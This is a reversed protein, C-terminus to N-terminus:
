LYRKFRALSVFFLDLDTCDNNYTNIMRYILANPGSTTRRFPANFTNGNRLRMDPAKSPIYRLIGPTDLFGSLLKILLVDTMQRRDEM